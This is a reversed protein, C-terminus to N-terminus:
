LAAKMTSLNPTNTLQGKWPLPNVPAQYGTLGNYASGIGYQIQRGFNVLDQTPFNSSTIGGRQVRRRNHRTKKRRGGTFPFSPGVDKMQRSIDNKYTNLAFHNAGGPLVGKSAPWVTPTWPKGVLGNPYPIGNNSAFAGTSSSGGGRMLPCTGGCGGGRIVQSNFLDYGKAPPGSSPYIPNQAYTNKLPHKDGGRYALNPNSITPVNNSPYALPWSTTKGGLHSKRTKSCGRMNYRSSRRKSKTHKGKSM